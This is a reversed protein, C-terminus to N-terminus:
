ELSVQQNDGDEYITLLKLENDIVVKSVIGRSTDIDDNSIAWHSPEGCSNFEPKGKYLQYFAVKDHFGSVKLYIYYDSDKIKVSDVLKIFDAVFCDEESCSFLNLSVLIFLVINKM